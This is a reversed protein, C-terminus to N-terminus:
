HSRLARRALKAYTKVTQYPMNLDAAIAQLSEGLERRALITAWTESIERARDGGKRKRQSMFLETLEAMREALLSQMSPVSPASECSWGLRTQGLGFTTKHGTGCYPALRGLAYFLQEYEPVEGAQRSLGFEVAGTFGTVMGKKGAAVKMSELQHRHILVSEEVWQLFKEQDVNMGSFDNWRRLYSHFVNTPVPLPFHHKKRRFSTPTVFSLRMTPPNPPASDWLTSYKVPDLAIECARISLPANRLDIEEPLQRVWERFFQVVPKSLATVYWRYTQGVQLQFDKGSSVLEGELGSITFPKESQGDHLYASLKPDAQRVQDLFWAHLGISYQAYLYDAARPTLEFVLGLLETDATWNLHSGSSYAASGRSLDVTGPAYLQTINERVQSKNATNIPSLQLNSM